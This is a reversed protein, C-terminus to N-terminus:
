IDDKLCNEQDFKELAVKFGKKWDQIEGEKHLVIKMNRFHITLENNPARQIRIRNSSRDAVPNILKEYLLKKIEGM